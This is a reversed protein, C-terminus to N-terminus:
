TQRESNLLEQEEHAERWLCWSLDEGLEADYAQQLPHEVLLSAQVHELPALGECVGGGNPIMDCLQVARQM